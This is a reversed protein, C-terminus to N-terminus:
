LQQFLALRQNALHVLAYVDSPTKGSFVNPKYYPSILTNADTKSVLLLVMGDLVHGSNLFVDSPTIKGTSVREDTAIARVGGRRLLIDAKERFINVQELVDAPKKNNVGEIDIAAMRSTLNEQDPSVDALRSLVDNISTWLGFVHSPTMGLDAANAPGSLCFLSYLTAIVLKKRLQSIRSNFM